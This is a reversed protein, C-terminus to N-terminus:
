ASAAASMPRCVGQDEIEPVHLVAVGATACAIRIRRPPTSRINAAGRRRLRRDRLAARDSEGTVRNNVLRVKAVHKAKAFAADTAAKDGFAITVGINGTPCDDWIKPAQPKAAEELDILAPLPEYDVVVLEAADRAQAETEAVVFAVHDGVCRM